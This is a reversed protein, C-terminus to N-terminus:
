NRGRAFGVFAAHPGAVSRRCSLSKDAGAGSTKTRRLALWDRQNLIIGDAEVDVDALQGIAEGITDIYTDTATVANATSMVTAQTYLGNLHGTAGTGFLLESEEFIALLYMLRGNIYASFAASDDLLQRSAPIWTALTQVPVNTLSYTIASEGKADGQTM